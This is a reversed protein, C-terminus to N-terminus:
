REDHLVHIGGLESCDTTEGNVTCDCGGDECSIEVDCDEAGGCDFADGSHLADFSSCDEEDDCQVIIRHVAKEKLVPADAREDLTATVTLPSGDRWIELAVTEGSEHESVLHALARGSAVRGDDVATIIDGVRIGARYAPSDEIVKSVMVGAEGAVGFHERLEATLETMGVGLFGGRAPMWHGGHAAHGFAHAFTGDDASAVWRHGEASVERTEGDEGIFVVHHEGSDGAVKKIQVKKVVKEEAGASGTGACCLLLVGLASVLRSKTATM